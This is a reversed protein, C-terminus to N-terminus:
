AQPAYIIDETVGNEIEPVNTYRGQFALDDIKVKISGYAPLATLM